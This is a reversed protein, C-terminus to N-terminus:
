KGIIEDILEIPISDALIFKRNAMSHKYTM